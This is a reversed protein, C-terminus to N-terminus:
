GRRRAMKGVANKLGSEPLKDWLRDLEQLASEGLKAAKEVPQADGELPQVRVELGTIEVGRGSLHQLLTPGILKLKAAVANNAAFIVVKGQRYNAISCSRALSEPLAAALIGRLEILRRAQPMLSAIGEPQSLLAGLNRRHMNQSHM